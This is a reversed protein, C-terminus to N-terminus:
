RFRYSVELSGDGCKEFGAIDENLVTNVGNHILHMEAFRAMDPDLDPMVQGHKEILTVELGLLAMKAAMQVGAFGAGAIIARQLKKIGAFGKILNQNNVEMGCYCLWEGMNEWDPVTGLSFIGPLDYGPVPLQVPIAMPSLVLKDYKEVTIADTKLNQIQIVKNKASIGIVECNTRCDIGTIAKFRHGTANLPSDSDYIDNDHFPLGRHSYSLFPGREILLIEADGDLGRLRAACTAGGAIGGVIIVKM